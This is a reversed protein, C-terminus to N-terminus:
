DRRFILERIHESKNGSLRYNINIKYNQCSLLHVEQMFAIIFWHKVLMPLKISKCLELGFTTIKPQFFDNYKFGWKSFIERRMMVSPNGIPCWFISQWKIENPTLPLNQEGLYVGYNDIFKLNSGCVMIDSNKELISIQRAFRDPANVDDADMLAIFNGRAVSVGVNLAFVRGMNCPFTIKRIIPNQYSDIILATNDTSGDDVIILKFDQFTQNLTSDIAERLFSEGNVVTILASILPGGM